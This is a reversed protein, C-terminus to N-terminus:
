DDQKQPVVQEFAHNRQKRSRDLHKIHIMVGEGGNGRPEAVLVAHFRQRVEAAAARVPRLLCDARATNRVVLKIGRGLLLAGSQRITKGTSHCGVEAM